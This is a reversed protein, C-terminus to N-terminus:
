KENTAEPKLQQPNQQTKKTPLTELNVGPGPSTCGYALPKRRPPVTAHKCGSSLFHRTRPLTSRPSRKGATEKCPWSEEICHTLWWSTNSVSYTNQSTEAGGWICIVTINLRFWIYALISSPQIRPGCRFYSTRTGVQPSILQTSPVGPHCTHSTLEQRVEPGGGVRLHELVLSGVMGRHASGKGLAPPLNSSGKRTPTPGKRKRLLWQSVNWGQGPIQPPPGQHFTVAPWMTANHM